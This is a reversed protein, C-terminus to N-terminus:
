DGHVPCNTSKVYYGYPYADNNDLKPCTCKPVYWWKHYNADETFKWLRQLHFENETWAAFLSKLSSKDDTSAMRAVLFERYIHGAQIDAIASESLRQRAALEMNISM